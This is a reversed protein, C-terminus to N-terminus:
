GEKWRSKSNSHAYELIYSMRKCSHPVYPPEPDSSPILSREGRQYLRLRMLLGGVSRQKLVLEISGVEGLM